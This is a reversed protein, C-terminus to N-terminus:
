HSGKSQQVGGGSNKRLQIKYGTTSSSAAGGGYQGTNQIRVFQLPQLFIQEQVQLNNRQIYQRIAGRAQQQTRFLVNRFENVINNLHFNRNPFIDRTHRETMQLIKSRVQPGQIGQVLQLFNDNDLNKAVFQAIADRQKEAGSPVIAYSTSGSRVIDFMDPTIHHGPPSTDIIKKLTRQAQHRSTFPIGLIPNQQFFQTLFTKIPRQKKTKVIEARRARETAMVLSRSDKLLWDELADRVFKKMRRKPPQQGDEVLLDRIGEPCELRTTIFDWLAKMANM